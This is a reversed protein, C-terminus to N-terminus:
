RVINVHDQQIAHLLPLKHNSDCKYIDTELFHFRNALLVVINCSQSSRIQLPNADCFTCYFM